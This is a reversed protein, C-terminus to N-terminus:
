TFFATLCEIDFLRGHSEGVGLDAAKPHKKVERVAFPEPNKPSSFLAFFSAFFKKFFNQFLEFFCNVFFDIYPIM